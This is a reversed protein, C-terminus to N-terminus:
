WQRMTSGHCFQVGVADCDGEDPPQVSRLLGLQVENSPTSEPVTSVTMAKLPYLPQEESTM